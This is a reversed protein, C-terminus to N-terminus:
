RDGSSDGSPAPSAPDFDHSGSISLSSSGSAVFETAPYVAYGSNEVSGGDDARSGEGAYMTGTAGPLVDHSANPTRNPTRPISAPLLCPPVPM